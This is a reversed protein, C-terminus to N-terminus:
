QEQISELSQFMLVFNEEEDDMLKRLVLRSFCMM